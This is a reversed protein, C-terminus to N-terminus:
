FSTFYSIIIDFKTNEFLSKDELDDCITIYNETNRKKSIEIM